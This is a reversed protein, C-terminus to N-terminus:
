ILFKEDVYNLGVAYSVSSDNEEIVKSSQNYQVFKIFNEKTSFDFDSTKAYIKNKKNFKDIISLLISIPKRGCITNKYQSMYNGFNNPDMTEISEMGMKDLKEISEFIKGCSKDYLTYRFRKGWHCFDSSIVFLTNKDKYLDLLTEAISEQLTNDIEGVMIPLIQISDSNGLIFKLFPYQMELSHEDEDVDHDIYNFYNNKALAKTTKEDVKLNGFPTEIHSFKSLGCGEFYAHHSPGIVVIRNYNFKNITIYGWGATPGSYRYGAHPVIISKLFKSQLSFSREVTFNKASNFFSQIESTLEEKSSSYWSGSHSAFRVKISTDM